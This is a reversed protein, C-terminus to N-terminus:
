FLSSIYKKDRERLVIGVTYICDFTCSHRRRNTPSSGGMELLRKFAGLGHPLAMIVFKFQISPSLLIKM